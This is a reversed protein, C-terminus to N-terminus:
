VVIEGTWGLMGDSLNSVHEFGYQKLFLCANMSRMGVRCVIVLERDEPLHNISEPIKQLPIHVAGPIMGQAVEDDERVDVVYITNNQSLKSELEGGNIENIYQVNLFAGITNNLILNSKLFIPYNIWVFTM